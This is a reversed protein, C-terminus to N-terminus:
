GNYVGIDVNDASRPRLVKVTLNIWSEMGMGDHAEQLVIELGERVWFQKFENWLDQNAAHGAKAAQLWIRRTYAKVKKLPVRGHEIQDVLEFRISNLWDEVDVRDRRVAEMDASAQAELGKINAQELEDLTQKLKEGLKM